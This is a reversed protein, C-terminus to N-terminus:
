CLCFFLAFQCLSSISSAFMQLQHGIRATDFYARILNKLWDHAIAKSESVLVVVLNEWYQLLARAHVLTM